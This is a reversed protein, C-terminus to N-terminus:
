RDNRRLIKFAERLAEPVSIIQKNTVIYSTNSQKIARKDESRGM